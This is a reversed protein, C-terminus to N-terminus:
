ENIRTGAQMGNDEASFWGQGRGDDEESVMRCSAAAASANAYAPPAMAKAGAGDASGVAREAFEM